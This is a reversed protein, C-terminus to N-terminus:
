DGVELMAAEHQAKSLRNHHWENNNEMFSVGKGKVTNAIVVYPKGQNRSADKFASYIEAVNHGDIELTDWGFSSWKQAFDGMDMIDASPGDSQMRNRDIIAILNDLKFHAAAMAAEWVSGENCEGDGMLVFASFERNKRKASLSIGIGMSLGMGLSGSSSEIGKKINMAPQGPLFGDDAEFTYLEDMTFFGAVALATYYGLTGHGKSLIFRDRDEWEPNQPDLNMIAGYLTATIEIISLGSGVHAGNAGASFAMNLAHKRMTKAMSEIRRIIQERSEM